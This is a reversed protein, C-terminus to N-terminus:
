GPDARLFAVHTLRQAGGLIGAIFGMAVDQSPLPPRGGGGPRVKGDRRPLVKGLLAGFQRWHLFGCFTSLGARGSIKQGTFGIRISEGATNLEIFEATVTQHATHSAHKANYRKM